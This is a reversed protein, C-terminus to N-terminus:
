RNVERDRAPDFQSLKERLAQRARHLLVGAHNATVRVAEAADANSLGDLHILCFVTAQIVDIEALATRMRDALEGASAVDLPDIARDDTTLDPLPEARRERYRSRLTDLARATTLRRLVAPWNGVVEREALEVAALFTRQFCDSADAHHDLLRYATRWVLPGHDRIITPWDTM